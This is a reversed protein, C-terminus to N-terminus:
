STMEAPSHAGVKRDLWDMIRKATSPGNRHLPLSHGTNAVVHVEIGGPVNPYYPAEAQRVSEDTCVIGDPGAATMDEGGLVILTPVKIFRSPSEAPPQSLVLPVSQEILMGSAIDKLREDIDIIHQDANAKNYFFTAKSGPRNTIYGGDLGTKSFTPDESVSYLNEQVLGLFTPRTFHLLGTLVFADVDEHLSAEVWGYATSLSSGFYVVKSFQHGGIAGARLKSIVQHLTDVTAALTVLHSAPKTSKGVGLRDVNFTAYGAALAARVHSHTGPNEPWDWYNHNYTTGHVLLQVTNPTQGKPICLEGYLEADAVNEVTVPVMFSQCDSNDHKAM